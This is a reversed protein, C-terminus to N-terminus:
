PISRRRIASPEIMGRAVVPLVMAGADDDAFAGGVDEFILVSESNGHALSLGWSVVGARKQCCVSHTELALHNARLPACM